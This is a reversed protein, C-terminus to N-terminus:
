GNLYDEIVNESTQLIFCANDQFGFTILYENKYKALGCCFEIKAGMFDFESSYRVLNWNSDWNLLRHRYYANKRGAEDYWLYTEHIIALYGDRYSIVQSGGRMNQSINLNPGTVSIQTSSNNELNIEVLETPNAWKIFHYPKDLIPMWNKECYSNKDIPPEIRNRKIERCENEFDIESLELRGEGHPTTDRRVGCLYFTDNWNVLRSDELGIFEWKPPVDLLTTDVLLHDKVNLESTLECIFNKTRLSNDNEPHFYCLPGWPHEINSLESHYLMYQVNRINVFIQENNYVYVSPNCLGTGETRSDNIILPKIKGGYKLSDHVFGM